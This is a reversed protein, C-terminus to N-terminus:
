FLMFQDFILDRGFVSFLRESSIFDFETPSKKNKRSIMIIRILFQYKLLYEIVNEYFVMFYM